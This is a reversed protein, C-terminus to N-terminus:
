TPAVLVSWIEILTRMRVSLKRLPLVNQLHVMTGSIASLNYPVDQISEDRRTATVTIEETGTLASKGSHDEALSIGPTSGFAAAVAAAVPTMRVPIATYVTNRKM